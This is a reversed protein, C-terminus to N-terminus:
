FLLKWYGGATVLYNIAKGVTYGVSYGKQSYYQADTLGGIINELENEEIITFNGKTIFKDM